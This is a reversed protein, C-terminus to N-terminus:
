SHLTSNHWTTCPALKEKKKIYINLYLYSPFISLYHFLPLLSDRLDYVFHDRWGERQFNIFQPIFEGFQEYYIDSVRFLHAHGALFTAEDGQVWGHRSPRVIGLSSKWQEKPCRSNSWALWCGLHLHIRIIRWTTGTYYRRKETSKLHPIPPHRSLLQFKPLYKSNVM